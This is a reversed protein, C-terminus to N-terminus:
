YCSDHSQWTVWCCTPGHQIVNVNIGSIAKRIAELRHINFGNGSFPVWFFLCNFIFALPCCAPFLGSSYSRAEAHTVTSYIIHHMIVDDSTVLSIIFITYVSLHIIIIMKSLTFLITGKILIPKKLIKQLSILKNQKALKKTWDELQWCQWCPFHMNKNYDTWM